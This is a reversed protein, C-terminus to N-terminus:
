LVDKVQMNNTVIDEDGDENIFSFSVFDAGIEKITITKTVGEDMKYTYEHGESVVDDDIVAMPNEEDWIIGTVIKRQSLIRLNGSATQPTNDEDFIRLPGSLNVPRTPNRAKISANYVFEVDKIKQMLAVHDISSIDTDDIVETAMLAAVGTTSNSATAVKSTSPTSPSSVINMSRYIFVGAVVLLVVLLIIQKKEQNM